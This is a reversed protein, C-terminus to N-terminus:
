RRGTAGSRPEWIAIGGAQKGIEVQGVRQLALNDFVEVLGPEGGVGEVTVFSYRGDATISVGHPIRRITPIRRVETGEELDWFGVADGKKYTAVLQKGNPTVALNYPGKGNAGGALTDFTRSVEWRELDIEYIKNASLGAVYIRGQPTPETVWSPEVQPAAHAGGRMAHDMKQAADGHGGGNTGHSAHDMATHDAASPLLSLRRKIEFRLADVEVL